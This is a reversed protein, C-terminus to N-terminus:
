LASREGLPWANVTRVAISKPDEGAADPLTLVAVRAGTSSAVADLADAVAARDSAELIRAGDAGGREPTPVVALAFAPRPLALFAFAFGLLLLTFVALGRSRM